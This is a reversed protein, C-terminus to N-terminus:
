GTVEGVKVGYVKEANGFLIKRRDAESLGATSAAAHEQVQPFLCIPHPFDTQFLLNDAGVSAVYYDIALKGEFWYSLFIQEAFAQRFPRKFSNRTERDTMEVLQYDLSDLLFPTWSAGSEVSVFKLKPFRDLLGSVLLNLITSQNETQVMVTQFLSFRSNIAVQADDLFMRRDGWYTVSDLSSAWDGSAVHFNLPLELAEAAAFFPYWNPDVLSPQNWDSTHVNM